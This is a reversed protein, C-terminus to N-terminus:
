KPFKKNYCYVPLENPVAAFCRNCSVCSVRDIKKERIRKVLFPDRIFPRSMSIFDAAGSAVAKEMCAVSRMGGVVMLRTADLVPRIREAANMNYGEQLPYKGELKGIMFAGVPRKWWPLSKVIEATPVDGRCMNMYSYNTTGCSVEVADVGLASLWGAYTVALTPTIGEQPTYDNTNLKVLIPFGQPVNAKVETYVAELFRFRKQDTGGWADTRTNFFPSLFEALLYGHAAHLQVADAGAEAARRAAQGFAEITQGIDSETMARPKVFNLPDRGRASPAVPTQGAMQRTTQRGCHALQFAIKGGHQHVAETLRGLGALMRDKHIGAQFRYGRGSPEVYMLGTISLGVEGKALTTYRKVFAESVEGNEGAMVEYTASCVFRNPLEITGLTQSSFLISM